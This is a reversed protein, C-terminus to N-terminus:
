KVKSRIKKKQFKKRLIQRSDNTEFNIAFFDSLELISKRNKLFFNQFRGKKSPIEM